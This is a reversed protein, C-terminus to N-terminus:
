VLILCHLHTPLPTENVFYVVAGSRTKAHSFAGGEALRQSYFFDYLPLALCTEISGNRGYFDSFNSWTPTALFLFFVAEIHPQQCSHCAIPLIPLGICSELNIAPPV